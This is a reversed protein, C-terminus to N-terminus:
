LVRWVRRKCALPIFVFPPPLAARGLEAQLLLVLLASVRPTCLETSAPAPLAELAGSGRASDARVQGQARGPKEVNAGVGAGRLFLPVKGPM